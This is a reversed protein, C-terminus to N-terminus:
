CHNKKKKRMWGKEKIDNEKEQFGQQISAPSFHWSSRFKLNAREAERWNHGDKQKPSSDRKTIKERFIM